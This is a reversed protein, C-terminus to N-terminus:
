KFLEHHTRKLNNKLKEVARALTTGVSEKKIDLIEAIESYSLGRRYLLIIKRDREPLQLLVDKIIKEQENQTLTQLIDEEVVDNPEIKKLIEERRKEDRFNSNYHNLIVKYLWARSNIITNDACTHYKLFAEHVLDESKQRCQTLQFAFLFLEKYYRNYTCSFDM